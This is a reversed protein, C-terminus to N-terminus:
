AKNRIFDTDIIQRVTPRKTPDKNLMKKLLAMLDSSISAIPAVQDKTIHKYLEEENQGAFPKRLSCLEYLIVGLAWVDSKVSYPQRTEEYVLEPALYFPTGVKSTNEVQLSDQNSKAGNTPSQIETANEM